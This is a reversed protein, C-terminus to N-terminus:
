SKKCLHHAAETRSDEHKILHCLFQDLHTPTSPRRHYKYTGPLRRAIEFVLQLHTSINIYIYRDENLSTRFPDPQLSLCGNSSKTLLLDLVNSAFYVLKTHTVVNGACPSVRVHTINLDPRQVKYRKRDFKNVFM